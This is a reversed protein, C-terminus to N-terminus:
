SDHGGDWKTDDKQEYSDSSHWFLQNRIQLNIDSM